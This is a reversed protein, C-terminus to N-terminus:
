KSHGGRFIFYVVGGFVGTFVCGLHLVGLNVVSLMGNQNSFPYFPRMDVHMMSDLFVHTYAGVFSAIIASVLTIESFKQEKILKNLAKIGINCIPRIILISILVAINVGLYTHFVRHLPSQHTVLFYLTECDILIQILIFIILSFYRHSASKILVGPGFHFPTFPM